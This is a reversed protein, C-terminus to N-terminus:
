PHKLYLVNEENGQVFGSIARRILNKLQKILLAVENYNKNIIQFEVKAAQDTIVQYGYSGATGKLQHIINRLEPWNEGTFFADIQKQYNPLERIYKQVLDIFDGDEDLLSSLIPEQDFVHDDSKELYRSAVSFLSERSIPKTVFEVCGAKFCKDKDEQMANATLAVIPVRYDNKKLITVAEVGDMIPMQMDMLVLNYHGQLAMKVAEEGNAALDVTVGMKRLMLSILRQNANNDEALLVRGKLSLENLILDNADRAIPLQADSYLLNNRDIAGTKITLTFKSGAGPETEVTIEGGLLKALQQSLSLGLGTGGFRRTTSPDAQTFANFIKGTEKENLGIGTDIVEFTMVRQDIDSDVNILIHGQGTFKIANSCLNLLIQKLRLFDSNITAPLPYHYNVDFSLGKESVQPKIIHVVDNLLHFPNVMVAEVELRGAEIKSIDLIDNILNLLHHGSRIITMVADLRESMTQDSQLLTEGFGIIATLPTRIEHSMNALFVSKARSATEADNKALLAANAEAEAQKRQTIDQVIGTFIRKGDLTAEGVSLEMPFVEGNKREGEIEVTTGIVTNEGSYLYKEVYEACRLRHATPFIMALPQGVVEDAQFGFIREAAQNFSVIMSDENASIIGENTSDFIARMRAENERISTDQNKRETIDNFFLVLGDQKPYAHLDIWKQLPAYYGELHIDRSYTIAKNFEKYLMPVAGPFTDWLNYGILEERRHEFVEEAKRNLNTIVWFRDLEIYANSMRELLEVVGKREREVTEKALLRDSSQQMLQRNQQLVTNVSRCLLRMMFISIVAFVVLEIGLELWLSKLFATSANSQPIDVLNWRTGDVPLSYIINNLQEKTLTSQANGPLQGSNRASIEVDVPREHSVLHVGHQFLAANTLINELRDPRFSIFIIIDNALGLDVPVAINFHGSQADPHMSLKPLHRERAFDAIDQRFEARFLDDAQGTYPEGKDNALLVTIADPFNQKVHSLLQDYAAHDDSKRVINKLLSSEREGFLRVSQQLNNIALDIQGGIGNLSTRALQYQQATYENYRYWANVILVMSVVALMSLVFLSALSRQRTHSVSADDTYSETAPSSTVESM